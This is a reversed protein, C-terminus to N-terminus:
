QCFYTIWNCETLTVLSLFSQASQLFARLSEISDPVNNQCYRFELKIDPWTLGSNQMRYWAAHNADITSQLTLFTITASQRAVNHEENPSQHPQMSVQRVWSVRRDGALRIPGSLQCVKCTRLSYMWKSAYQLRKVSPTSPTFNDCM